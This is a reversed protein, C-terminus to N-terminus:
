WVNRVHEKAASEDWRGKKAAKAKQQVADLKATYESCIFSQINIELREFMSWDENDLACKQWVRLLSCRLSTRALVMVLLQIECLILM